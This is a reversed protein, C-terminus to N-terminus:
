RWGQGDPMPHHLPGREMVDVGADMAAWNANYEARRKTEVDDIKTEIALPAGCAGRHVRYQGCNHPDCSQVMAVRQGQHCRWLLVREAM